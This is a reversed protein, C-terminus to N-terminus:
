DPIGSRLRVSTSRWRVYECLSGFEALGFFVKRSRNSGNRLLM